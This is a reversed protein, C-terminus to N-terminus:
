IAANFQMCSSKTKIMFHTLIFGTVSKIHHSGEATWALSAISHGLWFGDDSVCCLIM